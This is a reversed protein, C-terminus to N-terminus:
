QGGDEGRAERSGAEPGATELVEHTATDRTMRFWRGCGASHVWMERHVGKTNRQMYLYAAWERDGVDRAPEPRVTEAEGGYFFETEDRPGCWPCTFQQM